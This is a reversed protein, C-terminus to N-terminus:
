KTISGRWIQIEIDIVRLYFFWNVQRDVDGADQLGKIQHLEIEVAPTLFKQFLNHM